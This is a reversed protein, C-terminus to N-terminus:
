RCPSRARSCTPRSAPSAGRAPPPSPSATAPSARRWRRRRPSGWRWATPRARRAAAACSRAPTPSRGNGRSRRAARDATARPGGLRREIPRELKYGVVAAPLFSLALVTAGRLDFARLEEAILRRQGVALAAAAGAHLAVEFSKRLEPDITEWDWGALWPALVIHASSSVPLLEAPGQVLGLALARGNPIAERGAANLGRRRCTWGGAAREGSGGGRGGGRRDRLRGPRRDGRGRRLRPAAPQARWQEWNDGVARGILALRAGLAALRARDALHLALLADEAVGAPLSIFTRVIPLLRAFFVTVDGHQKFWGDVWDLRAPSVHILRNKELLDVRGYYGIAYTVWSGVM